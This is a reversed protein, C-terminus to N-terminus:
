LDYSLLLYPLVSSETTHAGLISVEQKRIETADILGGPSSCPNQPTHRGRNEMSDPLEGANAPSLQPETLVAWATSANSAGGCIKLLSM